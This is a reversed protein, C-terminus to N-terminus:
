TALRVLTDQLEALETATATERLGRNLIEQQTRAAAEATTWGHKTLRVLASRRDTPHAVRSLLGRRELRDVIRTVGGSTVRTAAVLAGAPLRRDPSDALALLLDAETRTLGHRQQGLELAEDFVATLRLLRIFLVVHDATVGEGASEWRDVLSRLQPLAWADADDGTDGGGFRTPLADLARALLEKLLGAASTVQAPTLRRAVSEALGAGWAPGIAGLTQRGRDTLRVLTVRRDTPSRRRQVLGAAELTDVLRTIKNKDRIIVSELDGTREEGALSAALRYLLETEELSGIRHGGPGQVARVRALVVESTSRAVSDLLASLQDAAPRARTDVDIRPAFPPSTM